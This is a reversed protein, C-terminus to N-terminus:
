FGTNKIEERYTERPKVFDINDARNKLVLMMSLNRSQGKIELAKQSDSTQSPSRSAISTPKQVRSSASETPVQAFSLNPLSILLTIISYVSFRLM